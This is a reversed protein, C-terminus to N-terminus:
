RSLVNGTRILLAEHPSLVRKADATVIDKKIFIKL